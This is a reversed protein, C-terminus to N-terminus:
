VEVKLKEFTNKLLMVRRLCFLHIRLSCWLMQDLRLKRTQRIILTILELIEPIYILAGVSPFVVEVHSILVLALHAAHDLYCLQRMGVRRVSVMWLFRSSVICNGLVAVLADGGDQGLFLCTTHALM